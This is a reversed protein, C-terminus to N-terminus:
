VTLTEGQPNSEVESKAKRQGGQPWWGNAACLYLLLMLLLTLYFYGDVLVNLPIFIALAIAMWRLTDCLSRCAGRWVSLVFLTSLVIAQVWRLQAPRILYTLWFSLNMPEAIAHPMRSWQGVTNSAVQAAAVPLFPGAICLFGATAPAVLKFLERWSGRQYANLFFFPLVVWSLQYIGCGMGWVFASWNYRGRQMLVVALTLALWHPQLYLDHRYQLFPCLLFLGISFAVYWRSRPLSCGFILAVTFLVYCLTAWRLDVGIWAAPLFAVPMGPLYPFDYLRAGVHMTGYPNLRHLLRGDAWGIVPLMDSRLYNLPFDRIALLLGAAYAGAVLYLLALGTRVRFYNWTLAGIVACVLFCSVYTLHYGFQRFHRGEAVFLLGSLLECILLALIWDTRRSSPPVTIAVQRPEPWLIALLVWVFAFSVPLLLVQHLVPSPKDSWGDSVLSVLAVAAAFGSLRRTGSDHVLGSFM